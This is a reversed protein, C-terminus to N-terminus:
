RCSSMTRRLLPAFVFLGWMGYVISPIGALLEVATGIPRRLFTRASSSWSSPSASRRGAPRVAPGPACTILTGVIPGAGGFVSTAGPGLDISTFFGLGFKSFAPWGGIALSVLIGGLAALLTTAAAFCLGSSSRISPRARPRADPTPLPRPETALMASDTM